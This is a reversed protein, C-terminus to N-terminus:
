AVLSCAVSVHASWNVQVYWNNIPGNFDFWTLLSYNCGVLLLCIICMVFLSVPVCVFRCVLYLIRKLFHWAIAVALKLWFLSFALSLLAHSMKICYYHVGLLKIILASHWLFTTTYNDSRKFSHQTWYHMAWYRTNCCSVAKPKPFFFTVFIDYQVATNLYLLLKTSVNLVQVTHIRSKLAYQAGWFPYLVPDWFSHRSLM